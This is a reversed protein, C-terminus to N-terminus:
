QTRAVGLANTANAFIQAPIAGALPYGACACVLETEALRARRVAIACGPPAITAVVGAMGVSAHGCRRGTDNALYAGLVPLAGATMAAPERSIIKAIPHGARASRSAREAGRAAGVAM